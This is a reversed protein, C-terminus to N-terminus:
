SLVLYRLPCAASSALGSWHYLCPPKWTGRIAHPIGRKKHEACAPRAAHIFTQTYIHICM